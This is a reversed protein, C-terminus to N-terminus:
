TNQLIINASLLFFLSLKAEGLISLDRDITQFPPSKPGLWFIAASYLQINHLAKAYFEDIVRYM